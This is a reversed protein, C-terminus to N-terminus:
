KTVLELRAKDKEHSSTSYLAALCNAELMVDFEPPLQM